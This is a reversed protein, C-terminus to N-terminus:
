LIFNLRYTQKKCNLIKDYSINFLSLYKELVLSAVTRTAM